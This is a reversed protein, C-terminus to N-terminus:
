YDKIWIIRPWETPLLPMRQLLAQERVQAGDGTIALTATFFDSKVDLFSDVKAPPIPAFTYKKISEVDTFPLGNDRSRIIENV